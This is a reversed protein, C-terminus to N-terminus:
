KGLEMLWRRVADVSDFRKCLHNRVLIFQPRGDDGDIATLTAGQLAAEAQAGALDKAARVKRENAGAASYFSRQNTEQLGEASLGLAKENGPPRV